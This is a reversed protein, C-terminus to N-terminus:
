TFSFPNGPKEWVADQFGYPGDIGMKMAAVVQEREEVTAKLQDILGNLPVADRGRVVPIDWMNPDLDDEAAATRIRVKGSWNGSMHVDTIIEISSQQCSGETTLAYVFIIRIDDDCLYMRASQVTLGVEQCATVIRRKVDEAHERGARRM